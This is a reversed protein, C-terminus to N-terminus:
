TPPMVYYYGDAYQLHTLWEPILHSVMPSIHGAVAAWSLICTHADVVLNFLLPSIPDELRLSRGNAFCTRIAGNLAVAMHGSYVFQMLRHVYAGDFSKALLVNRLYGM